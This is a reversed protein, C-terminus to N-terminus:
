ENKHCPLSNLDDVWVTRTATKAADHAAQWNANARARDVEGWSKVNRLLELYGAWASRRTQRDGRKHNLAIGCASVAMVPLQSDPLGCWGCNFLRAGRSLHLLIPKRARRNMGALCLHPLMRSVTQATKSM